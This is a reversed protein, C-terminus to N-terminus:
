KSPSNSKGPLLVEPISYPSTWPFPFPLDGQNTVHRPLQQHSNVPPETGNFLTEGGNKVGSDVIYAVCSGFSSSASVVTATHGSSSTM